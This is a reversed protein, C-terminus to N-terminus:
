FWFSSFLIYFLSKKEELVFFIEFLCFSFFCFVFTESWHWHPGGTIKKTGTFYLFIASCIFFNRSLLLMLLCICVWASTRLQSIRCLIFLVFRCQLSRCSLNFKMYCQIHYGSIATFMLRSSVSCTWILGGNNFFSHNIALWWQRVSWLFLFFFHLRM